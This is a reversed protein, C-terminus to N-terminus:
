FYTKGILYKAILWQGLLTALFAVIARISGLTVTNNPTLIWLFGGVVFYPVCTALVICFVVDILPCKPNKAKIVPMAVVAAFVSAFITLEITDGTSWTMGRFIEAWEDWYLWDPAWSPASM